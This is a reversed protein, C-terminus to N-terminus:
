SRSWWNCPRCSEHALRLCPFFWFSCTNQRYFHSVILLSYFRHKIQLALANNQHHCRSGNQGPSSSWSSRANPKCKEASLRLSHPLSQGINYWQAKQPKASFSSAKLARATWNFHQLSSLGSGSPREPLTCLEKRQRTHLPFSAEKDEENAHQICTSLNDLTTGYMGSIPWCNPWSSTIWKSYQTRPESSQSKIIKARVVSM